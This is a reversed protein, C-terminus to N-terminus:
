EFPVTRARLWVALQEESVEGSALNLMVAVVEPEAVEIEVGNLGLFVYMAMYAVRKNGDIYGHNGALGYGYAAALAHLDAAPDYEWRNRPRALASDILGAVRVGHSGGHEEVQESHIAGALERTLWRPESRM